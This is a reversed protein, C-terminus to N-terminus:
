STSCRCTTWFGSRGGKRAVVLEQERKHFALDTIPAVPLNLQFAQWDAGGNFSVFMGTETGAV